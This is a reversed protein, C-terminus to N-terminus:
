LYIPFVSLFISLSKLTRHQSIHFIEPNPTSFIPYNTSSLVLDAQFLYGCSSYTQMLCCCQSDLLIHIHHHTGQSTKGSAFRMTPVWLYTPLRKNVRDQWEMPHILHINGRLESMCLRLGQWTHISNWKHFSKSSYNKIRWAERGNSYSMACNKGDWM